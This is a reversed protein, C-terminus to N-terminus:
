SPLQAKMERKMQRNMHGYYILAVIVGFLTSTPCALGIHTLSAHPQTSMIYSMPLRVIFTQLMGLIMVFSSRDHGNFYGYLSFLLSTVIAEPGFGKLYDLSRQIFAQRTTFLSSATGGFLYVLILIVVGVSAGFVMGILMAKRARDEKGASVNQSIFASMSQMMSSPVLMIFSILKSAVGYGSSAELGLRNIFACIAMFSIQTLFEQLALPLGIRLFRRVESNIRFHSAKLTFPLDKKSMIVLSLVVSIAQAMITALAAGAVNMHFVAVFLLDGVVNCVCAIAVFILPTKSDGLGRFIAAIVNYAVIFFIGAGCIRIYQATLDLAEPPAMMLSAIGKAWITMILCLVVAIGAFVLVAGGILPSIKEPKREGLDHGIVVTVGMALATIVFTILNLVNSGTSVGSLGARSGFRGVVLLDVAGYMAQLVLAGFVPIMFKLLKGAIGGQTFDSQNQEATKEM